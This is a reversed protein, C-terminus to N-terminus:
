KRRLRRAWILGVLGGSLGLLTTSPEPVAEIRAGFNIPVGSFNRLQWGSGTNDWYDNYNQGVTPPSYLDVGASEGAEIGGFQVSWTFSDPVTVSLDSFILTARSTPGIAFLGSDYLVTSPVRPGSSSSAGDNLYFRVRAQENGSFNLGYYQFIFNTVTRGSGGLAIEDGVENVGPNFRTLLDTSSNDYVLDAVARHNSVLLLALVGASSLLKCLKKM